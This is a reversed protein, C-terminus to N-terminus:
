RSPRRSDDTTEMTLWTISIALRMPILSRGTSVGLSREMAERRTFCEGPRVTIQEQFSMGRPMSILVSPTEEGKPM